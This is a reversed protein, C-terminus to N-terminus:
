RLLAPMAYGAGEHCACVSATICLVAETLHKSKVGQWVVRAHDLQTCQCLRRVMCLM